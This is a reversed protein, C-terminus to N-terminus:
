KVITKEQQSIASLGASSGPQSNCFKMSTNLGSGLEGQVYPVNVSRDM